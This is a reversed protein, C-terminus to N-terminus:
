FECTVCNLDPGAGLHNLLHYGDATTLTTDGNVNAAWCSVPQPGAGFFNLTIYGDAPTVSGNGDTDGCPDYLISFAGPTVAMATDAGAVVKYRLFCSDSRVTPLTWQYRNNEPLDSAVLSWPGDSGESSFELEVRATDPSPVAATWDIVNVAGGRFVEGGRPFVPFIWLSEPMSVEKFFHARNYDNPWPGERAVLAIDPYGNHDV